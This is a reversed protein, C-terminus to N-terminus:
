GPCFPQSCCEGGGLGRNWGIALCLPAHRDNQSHPFCLLPIATWWPQAYLL